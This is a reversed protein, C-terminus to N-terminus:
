RRTPNHVPRFKPWQLLCGKAKRTQAYCHRTNAAWQKRHIWDDSHSLWQSGHVVRLVDQWGCQWWLFFCSKGMLLKLLHGKCVGQLRCCLGPVPSPAESSNYSNYFGHFLSCLWCILFRLWRITTHSGHAEGGCSAAHERGQLNSGLQCASHTPLSQLTLTKPSQASLDALLPALTTYFLSNRNLLDLLPARIPRSLQPQLCTSFAM